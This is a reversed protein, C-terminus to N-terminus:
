RVIRKVMYRYVLGDFGIPRFSFTTDATTGILFYDVNEQLHEHIEYLSDIPIGTWFLRLSDGDAVICVDTLAGDTIGMAPSLASAQGLVDIARIAFQYRWVPAAFSGLTVSSTFMDGLSSFGQNARTRNPSALTVTNTDFFVQYTDFHTDLAPPSWYVRVRGDGYSYVDTVECYEPALTDPIAHWTLASDIAKVFPQYYELGHVFTSWDSPPTGPLWRVWDPPLWLADPYEDLEIHLFNETHRTVDQGIHCYVAQVNDPAGLLDNISRILITTDVGYYSYEPNSYLGIYADILALLTSDGDAGTMPYLPLAHILDRHYALDRLPPNPRSDDHYASVQVDPLPLHTAHDYSHLQIIVLPNVPPANWADTVVRSLEAFPHRGNRSPDSYSLANNYTTRTTDWMVERGAGAIMLIGLEAQQYLQIGVPISMFDDEPHPMQLVATPHRPEPNFVFVGWGTRFGGIVDNEPLTDGNLDVFSSDLRERIIYYDRLSDSDFFEVLEYNWLSDQRQLLSDVIAWNGALSHQFVARWRALTSDGAAGTRIYQFGGFGNTQPDLHDPGYDNYGPRAIKESVHSQWNDYACTSCSGMLFGTLTGTEQVMAIASLPMLLLLWIGRQLVVLGEPM